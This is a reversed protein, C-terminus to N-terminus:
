INQFLTDVIEQVNENLIKDVVFELTKVDIAHEKLSVNLKEKWFDLDEKERKKVEYHEKIEEKEIMKVVVFLTIPYDKGFEELTHLTYSLAEVLSGGYLDVNMLYDEFLELIYKENYAVNQEM